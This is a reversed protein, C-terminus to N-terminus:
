PSISGERKRWSRLYAGVLLSSPYLIEEEMRAHHKLDQAFAVYEMKGAEAARQSLVELANVIEAHEEVMRPLEEALRDTLTIIERVDEESAEGIVTLMGLPPLAFGEEKEFHPRLLEMVTMAARGLAGDEHSARELVEHLHAHEESISGPIKM